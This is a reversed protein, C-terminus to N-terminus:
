LYRKVLKSFILTFDYFFYFGQQVVVLVGCQIHQSTIDNNSSHCLTNFRLMNNACKFEQKINMSHSQMDYISKYTGYGPGRGEVVNVNEKQVNNVTENAIDHSSISHTENTSSAENNSSVDSFNSIFLSEPSSNFTQFSLDINNYFINYGNDHITKSFISSPENRKFANLGNLILDQITDYSILKKTIWDKSFVNKSM